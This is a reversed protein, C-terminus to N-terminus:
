AGGERPKESGYLELFIQELNAGRIELHSLPWRQSLGAMKRIWEDETGEAVLVFEGDREEVSRAQLERLAAAAEPLPQAFSLNIRFLKRSLARLERLKGEAISRGHDLLVMRDCLSEAEDLLQTTLLVTGGAVARRRIAEVVRRKVLPDMGTTAEDLFLIPTEVMLAKAVQLRRKNGGSLAQARQGLHEHLELLVVVEEMRRATQSRSLGHLYGYLLLNDRTSLLTEVANEQLVAALQRRVELPHERVDHGAVLARGSTPRLITTLIKVVTTKGAGNPGLLGFIEGRRVAFSLGDLAPRPSQGRRYVHGLNEVQIIADSMGQLMM